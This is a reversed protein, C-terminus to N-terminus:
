GFRRSSIIGIPSPSRENRITSNSARSTTPIWSRFPGPPRTGNPWRRHEVHFTLNLQIGDKTAFRKQPIM